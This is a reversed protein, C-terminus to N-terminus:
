KQGFLGFVMGCVGMYGMHPVGTYAQDTQELSLQLLLVFVFSLSVLNKLM